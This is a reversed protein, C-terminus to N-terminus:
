RGPSARRSRGTAQPDRAAGSGGAILPLRRAVRLGSRILAVLGREFSLMAATAVLVNELAFTGGPRRFHRVKIM